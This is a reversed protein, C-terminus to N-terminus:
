SSSPAVNEGNAKTRKKDLFKNLRSMTDSAAHKQRERFFFENSDSMCLFFKNIGVLFFPDPGASVHIYPM